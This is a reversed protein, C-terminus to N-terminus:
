RIEEDDDLAPAREGRWVFHEGHTDLLNFSPHNKPHARLNM